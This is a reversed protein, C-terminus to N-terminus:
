PREGRQLREDLQDVLAPLEAVSRIVAHAGAASLKDAIKALRQSKEAPALHMFEDTSLGLESGGETVGISWAGANRGEEIDPVTDGVKVVAAPPCVGLAEMNRYIMWPCPRGAVVDDPFVCHDPRYGLPAVRDAVPQGIDRPYGTTTGIAIGRARLAAVCELTGPILEAYRVAEAGQLPLFNRYVRELDDDNWARSFSSQWQRVINPMELVARLHDRKNLGMPARAEAVSVDIGLQGFAQVCAAVPAMCGFDVTTGAWDFVALRIRLDTM